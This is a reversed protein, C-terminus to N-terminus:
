KAQDMFNKWADPMDKEVSGPRLPAFYQHGLLGKLTVGGERNCHARRTLTRVYVRVHAPALTLRKPSCKTSNTHAHTRQKPKYTTNRYLPGVGEKVSEAQDGRHWCCALM